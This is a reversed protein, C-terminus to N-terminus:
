NFKCTILRSICASLQYSMYSDDTMMIYLTDM